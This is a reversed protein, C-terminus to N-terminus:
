PWIKNLHNVKPFYLHNMNFILRSTKGLDPFLQLSFADYTTRNRLLEM